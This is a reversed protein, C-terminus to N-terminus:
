AENLIENAERGIAEDLLVVENENEDPNFLIATLEVSATRDTEIWAGTGNMYGCHYDDEIYGETEVSGQCNVTLLDDIEIDRDFSGDESGLTAIEKMLLAKQAETLTIKKM